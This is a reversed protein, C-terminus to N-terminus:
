TSSVNYFTTNHSSLTYPFGCFSWRRNISTVCVPSKRILSYSLLLLLWPIIYHLHSPYKNSPHQEILKKKEREVSHHNNNGIFDSSKVANVLSETVFKRTVFLEELPSLRRIKFVNRSGVKILQNASFTVNKNVALLLSKFGVFFYYLIYLCLQLCLFISVVEFVWTVKNFNCPSSQRYYTLLRWKKNLKVKYSRRACLYCFGLLMTFFDSRCCRRQCM